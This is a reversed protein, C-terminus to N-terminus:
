CDMENCNFYIAMFLNPNAGHAITATRYVISMVRLRNADTMLPLNLLDDQTYSKMANRTRVMEFIIRATSPYTALNKIYGLKKLIFISTAMSENMQSQAWRTTMRTSYGMFRDSFPFDSEIVMDSYMSSATLDGVCHLAQALTTHLRLKLSKVQDTEEVSSLCELAEKSYSIGADFAFSKHIAKEAAKLNHSAMEIREADVAVLSRGGNCLDISLSLLADDHETVCRDLLGRGIELQLRPLEDETILRFSSAQVQDHIFSYKADGSIEILRADICAKMSASADTITEISLQNAAVLSRIAVSLTEEYFAQGLCSAIKLLTQTSTPLKEIKRALLDGVNDAVSLAEIAGDEWIWRMVGINYSLLNENVLMNLYQVVFFANGHTKEHVISALGVTYDETEQMAHAVVSNVAQESLNGIGIHHLPINPHKARISELTKLFPYKGDEDDAKSEGNSDAASPTEKTTSTSAVAVATTTTTRPPIQLEDSRSTVVIIISSERDTLLAELLHLSPLDIWQIDDLVLVVPIIAGRKNNDGGGGDSAFSHQGSLVRFLQRAIFTFQSTKQEMGGDNSSGVGSSSKTMHDNSSACEPQAEVIRSLGPFLELLLPLSPEGVAHLIQDKLIETNSKLLIQEALEYSASAFATYPQAARSQNQKPQEFKGLCFYGGKALVPRELQRALVTKGTGSIGSILILRSSSSPITTIPATKDRKSGGRGQTTTTIIHDQLISHLQQIEEDRGVFLMSSSSSPSSSSSSSTAPDDASTISNWRLKGLNLEDMKTRLAISNQRNRLEQVKKTFEKGLQKTCTTTTNITTAQTIPIQVTSTEDGNDSSTGISISKNKYLSNNRTSRSRLQFLSSSTTTTTTFAGSGSSCSSSRIDDDDGHKSLGAGGGYGGGDDGLRGNVEVEGTANEEEVAGATEVAAASSTAATTMMATTSTTTGTSGVTTNTTTMLNSEESSSSSRMNGKYPSAMAMAVAVKGGVIGDDDDDSLHKQQMPPSSSSSSALQITSASAADPLQQQQDDDGCDLKQPADNDHSSRTSRGSQRRRKRFSSLIMM